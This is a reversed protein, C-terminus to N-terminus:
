LPPQFGTIGLAECTAGCVHADLFANIAYRGMDTEGYVFQAPDGDPGAHAGWSCLAADTIRIKAHDAPLGTSGGDAQAVGQVVLSLIDCHAVCVM